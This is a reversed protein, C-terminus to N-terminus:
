DEIIEFPFSDQQMIMDVYETDVYIRGPIYKPGSGRNGRFAISGHSFVWVEKLRPVQMITKIILGYWAKVEHAELKESRPDRNLYRRIVPPAFRRIDITFALYRLRLDQAGSTINKIATKLTSVHELSWLKGEIKVTSERLILYDLKPTLRALGDWLQKETCAWTTPQSLNAKDYYLHLRSLGTLGRAKEFIDSDIWTYTHLGTLVDPDCHSMIMKVTDVTGRIKLVRLRPWVLKGIDMQEKLDRLQDENLGELNLSLNRIGSLKYLAAALRNPLSNCVGDGTNSAQSDTEPPASKVIFSAFRFWSRAINIAADDQYCNFARLVGDLREQTDRLHIEEFNQMLLLERWKLSSITTSHHIEPNNRWLTLEEYLESPIELARPRAIPLNSM